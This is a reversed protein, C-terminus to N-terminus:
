LKALEPKLLAAVENPDPFVGKELKSFYTKGNLTVEFASPRPKTANGVV